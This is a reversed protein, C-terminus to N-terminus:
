PWRVVLVLVVYVVIGIVVAVMVVAAVVMVEVVVIKVLLVRRDFSKVRVWGLRVDRSLAFSISIASLLIWVIGSWTKYNIPVNENCNYM